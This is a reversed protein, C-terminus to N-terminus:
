YVRSEEETKFQCIEATLSDVLERHDELDSIWIKGKKRIVIKEPVYDAGNNNKQNQLRLQYVDDEQKTVDYILAANKYQVMIKLAM